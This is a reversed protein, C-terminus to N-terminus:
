RKLYRYFFGPILRAVKPNKRYFVEKVDIKEIGQNNEGMDEEMINNLYVHLIIFNGAVLCNDGRYDGISM